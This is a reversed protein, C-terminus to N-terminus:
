PLYEISNIEGQIKPKQSKKVIEQITMGLMYSPSPLGQNNM